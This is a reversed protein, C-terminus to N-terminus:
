LSIWRRAGPVGRPLQSRVARGVRRAGRGAGRVRRRLTTARGTVGTTTTAPTTARDVLGWRADIESTVRLYEDLDGGVDPHHVRAARRRERRWQDVHDDQPM